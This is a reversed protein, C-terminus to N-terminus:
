PLLGPGYIYICIYIYIYIHILSIENAGLGRWWRAQLGRVYVSYANDCIIHDGSSSAAAKAPGASSSSSSSAAAKAKEISALHGPSGVIHCVLKPQSRVRKKSSPQLKTKNRPKDACRAAHTAPAAMEPVTLDLAMLGRLQEPVVTRVKPGDKLANARDLAEQLKEAARVRTPWTPSTTAEQFRYIRDAERLDKAAQIVRDDAVEANNQIASQGQLVRQVHARVASPVYGGTPKGTPQGTHSLVADETSAAPPEEEPSTDLAEEMQEEEPWLDPSLEEKAAMAPAEVVQEDEVPEDKVEKKVGGSCIECHKFLFQSKRNIGKCAIGECAIHM